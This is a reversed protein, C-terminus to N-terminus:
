QWQKRQLSLVAKKIDVRALPPILGARFAFSRATAHARRMEERRSKPTVRSAYEDALNAAITAHCQAPLQGRRQHLLKRAFAAYRVGILEDTTGDYLFEIARSSDCFGSVITPPKERAALEPYSPIIDLWDMAYQYSVIGDSSPTGKFPM